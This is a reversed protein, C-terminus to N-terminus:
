VFLLLDCGWGVAKWAVPGVMGNEYKRSSPDVVKGGSCSCTKEGAANLVEAFLCVNVVM